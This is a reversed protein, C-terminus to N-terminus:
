RDAGPLIAPFHLHFVAGGDPANEVRIRGRLMQTALNYVIHLGLGSGGLGRRTTFFPDFIRSLNEPPIGVGDDSFRLHVQGDDLGAQIRMVGARGEPFAHLLSNSVLNTLIQALAGPLTDVGIKEDCDVEVRHPTKKLRPALSLLVEDIYARLGFRRREGSSQDVAVQKFSQILDAARQLNKLLIASAEEAVEAYRELDPRTLRGSAYAERMRQTRNQLTSAATVSVGVPTNIEHAVGAVLGGLSALKESQVLQSQAERLRLMAIRLEANADTKEEVQRSLADRAAQLDRDRSAIQELMQNFDDVLTGIEDDGHRNARLNYARSRSITRAMQALELIPQTLSRQLRWGVAASAFFAAALIGLTFVIQATLARQRQSLNQSVRLTGIREEGLMVPWVAVLHTLSEHVGAEGPQPPCRADGVLFSAFPVGAPAPGYLCAMEIEPKARLAVLTERAADPDGFTLAATVGDASIHSLTEIDRISASRAGSWAYFILALGAPLLGVTSSLVTFWVLKRRIPADAFRLNM